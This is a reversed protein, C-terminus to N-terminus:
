ASVTTSVKSLAHGDSPKPPNQPDLFIKIGAAGGATGLMETAVRFAELETEGPFAPLELTIELRNDNVSVLADHGSNLFHDMLKEATESLWEFEVIEGDSSALLFGISYENMKM